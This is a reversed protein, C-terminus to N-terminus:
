SNLIEEIKLLKDITINSWTITKSLNGVRQCAYSYLDLDFYPPYIGCVYGFDNDGISYGTKTSFILLNQNESDVTYIKPPTIREVYYRYVDKHTIPSKLSIARTILCVDGTGVYARWDSLKNFLQDYTSDNITSNVNSRSKM